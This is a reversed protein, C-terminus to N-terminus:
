RQEICSYSDMSIEMQSCLMQEHYEICHKFRITAKWIISINSHQTKAWFDNKGKLNLVWFHDFFCWWVYIELRVFQGFFHWMKTSVFVIFTICKHICNHTLTTAFHWMSITWSTLKQWCCCQFAVFYGNRIPISDAHFRAFLLLLCITTETEQHSRRTM